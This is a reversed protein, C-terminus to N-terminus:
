YKIIKFRRVYVRGVTCFHSCNLEHLNESMQYTLVVINLSQKDYKGDVLWSFSNLLCFSEKSKPLLIHVQLYHLLMLIFTIFWFLSYLLYVSSCLLLLFNSCKRESEAHSLVYLFGTGASILQPVLYYM